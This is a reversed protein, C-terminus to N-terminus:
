SSRLGGLGDGRWDVFGILCQIGRLEGESDLMDLGRMQQPQEEGLWSMEQQGSAECVVHAKEGAGSDAGELGVLMGLGRM